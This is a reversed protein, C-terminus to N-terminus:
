RRRSGDEAHGQDGTLSYAFRTLAPIRAAVFADFEVDPWGSM